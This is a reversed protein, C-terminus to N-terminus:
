EEIESLHEIIFDELAELRSLVAVQFFDDESLTRDKYRNSMGKVIKESLYNRLEEKTM